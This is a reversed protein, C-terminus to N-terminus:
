TLPFDTENNNKIKHHRIKMMMLMMKVCLGIDLVTYVTPTM